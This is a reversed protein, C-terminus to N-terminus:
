RKNSFIALLKVELQVIIVCMSIATVEDNLM